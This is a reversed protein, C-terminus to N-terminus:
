EPIGLRKKQEPTWRQMGAYIGYFAVDEKRVTVYPFNIAKCASHLEVEEAGKHKLVKVMKTGDNMAVCVIDGTKPQKGKEFIVVDGPKIGPDADMMSLGEVVVAFYPGPIASPIFYGQGEWDEYYEKGNPTAVVKGYFPIRYKMPIGVEIDDEKVLVPDMCGLKRLRGRIVEGVIDRGALLNSMQQQSVELMEAFRKQWGHDEGVLSIGFARLHQAPDM